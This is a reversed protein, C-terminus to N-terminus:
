RIVRQLAVWFCVCVCRLINKSTHCNKSNCNLLGLLLALICGYLQTFSLNFKRVGAFTFLLEPLSQITFFKNFSCIGSLLSMKISQLRVLFNFTTCSHFGVELLFFYCWAVIQASM